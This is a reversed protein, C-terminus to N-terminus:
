PNFVDAAEGAGGPANDAGFSFLDYAHGSVTSGLLIATKSGASQLKSALTRIGEEWSISTFAKSGPQAQSQPGQLRDPNYLVQLGAQGRACLKGQNLPHHPNGEIKVARGNMIRVIIGCGAPCQRCTSAYWTAQGTLQEEPPTVYPELVEWRRPWKCGALVLTAAGVTSLQLFRRRSLKPSM